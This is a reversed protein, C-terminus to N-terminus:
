KMCKFETWGKPGLELAEEELFGERKWSCSPVMDGSSPMGQRGVYVIFWERQSELTLM